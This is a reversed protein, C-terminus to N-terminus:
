DHPRGPQSQYSPPAPSYLISYTSFLFFLHTTIRSPTKKKYLLVKKGSSEAMESVLLEILVLTFARKGISTQVSCKVYM